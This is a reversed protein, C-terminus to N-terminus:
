WRMKPSCLMMMKAIHDQNLLQYDRVAVANCIENKLANKRAWFFLIGVLDLAEGSNPDILQEPQPFCTEDNWRSLIGFTAEDSHNQDTDNAVLWCSMLEPAETSMTM